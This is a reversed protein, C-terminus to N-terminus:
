RADRVGQQQTLVIRDVGEPAGATRRAVYEIGAFHRDNGDLATAVDSEVTRALQDAVGDKLQGLVAVVEM